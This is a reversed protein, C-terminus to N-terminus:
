GLFTQRTILKSALYNLGEIILLTVLLVIISRSYPVPEQVIADIMGTAAGGVQYYTQPYWSINLGLLETTEEGYYLFPFLLAFSTAILVVVDQKVILSILTNLRTFGYLLLALLPLARIFFTSLDIVSWISAYFPEGEPAAEFVGAPLSGFGFGYQIGNVLYFIGTIVAFFLAVFGLAALSQVMLYTFWNKSVGLKQTTLKRDKTVVDSIMFLLLFILIYPGWGILFLHMQQLSTREHIHHFSLPEVENVYVQNKMAQFGREQAYGLIPLNFGEDEMVSGPDEQPRYNITLYRRTDGTRIATLLERQNVYENRAQQYASTGTFFSTLTQGTELRDEFTQQNSVISRELQAVDVDFDETLNPLILLSHALVVGLSLVMVLRNKKNRWMYKLTEKIIQKYM